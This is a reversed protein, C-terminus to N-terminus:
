KVADFYLTEGKRAPSDVNPVIRGGGFTSAESKSFGAANAMVSLTAVDYASRHGFRYFVEAMALGRTPRHPRAEDILSNQGMYSRVYQEIDPVGIRCVGGVELLRWCERLLRMAGPYPIHELVHESFIAQAGGAQFPLPRRLDWRLDVRRGPRAYDVNCWGNIYTEACGLHLLLPQRTGAVKKAKRREWPVVLTTVVRKATEAAARKLGEEGYAIRFYGDPSDWHADGIQPKM